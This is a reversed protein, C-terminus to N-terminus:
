KKIIQRKLIATTADTRKESASDSLWDSCRDDTSWDFTLDIMIEIGSKGLHLFLSLLLYIMSANKKNSNNKASVRVMFIKQGLGM